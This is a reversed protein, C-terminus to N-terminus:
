KGRKALEALTVKGQTAALLAVVMFAQRAKGTIRIVQKM